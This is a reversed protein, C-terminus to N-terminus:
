LYRAGLSSKFFNHSLLVSWTFRWPIGDWSLLEAISRGHSKSELPGPFMDLLLTTVFAEDPNSKPKLTLLTEAALPLIGPYPMSLVDWDKNARDTNIRIHSFTSTKICLPHFKAGQSRPTQCQSYNFKKKAEFHFACEGGIQRPLAKPLATHHLSASQQLIAIPLLHWYSSVPSSSFSPM